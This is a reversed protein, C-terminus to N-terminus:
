DEACSTLRRRPIKPSVPDVTGLAMKESARDEKLRTKAAAVCDRYVGNARVLEGNERAKPDFMRTYGGDCAEPFRRFFEAYGGDLIYVNQYHLKPYVNVSRDIERFFGALSPGRVRSFECHFVFLTRSAPDAFFRSRLEGPDPVNVSGRIHGGDYEYAFRADIIVISNFLDSYKGESLGRLTEGTIYPIKGKHVTTPIPHSLEDTARRHNNKM